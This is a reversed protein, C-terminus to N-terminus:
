CRKRWLFGKLYSCSPEKLLAVCWTQFAFSLVHPTLTPNRGCLILIVAIMAKVVGFRPFVATVRAKLYFLYYKIIYNLLSLLKLFNKNDFM